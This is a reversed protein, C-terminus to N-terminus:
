CHRQKCNIICTALTCVVKFHALNHPHMNGALIVAGFKMHIRANGKSGQDCHWFKINKDSKSFTRQIYKKERRQRLIEMKPTTWSEVNRGRLISRLLQSQWCWYFFIFEHYERKSHNLAIQIAKLCALYAVIVLLNSCCVALKFIGPSITFSVFWQEPVLVGVARCM